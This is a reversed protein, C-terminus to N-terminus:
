CCWHGYVFVKFKSKVCVLQYNRNLKPQQQSVVNDESLEQKLLDDINHKHM